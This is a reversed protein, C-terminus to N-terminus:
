LDPYTADQLLSSFHSEWGEIDEDSLEELNSIHGDCTKKIEELLRKIEKRDAM